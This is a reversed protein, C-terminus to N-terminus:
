MESLMLETQKGSFFTAKTYVQSHLSKTYGNSAYAEVRAYAEESTSVCSIHWTWRFVFM